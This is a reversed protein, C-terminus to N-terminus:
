LHETAVKVKNDYGIQSLTPSDSSSQNDVMKQVYIGLLRFPREACIYLLFGFIMDMGFDGIVYIFYTIVSFHDNNRLSATTATPLVTNLLYVNFGIASLPTFPKWSLISHVFTQSGNLMVYLVLCLGGSWISRITAGYVANRWVNYETYPYYFISGSGWALLMIVGGVLGYTWTQTLPLKDGKYNHLVYGLITGIIYPGARTYAKMYFKGFYDDESPTIFFRANFILNANLHEAYTVYFPIIIAVVLATYAVKLGIKPRYHYLYCLPIVALGFQFECPMFWTHFGCLQDSYVYNNIYLLNTWWVKKCNEMDTGVFMNWLPGDGMKYYLTAYFFLVIAYVPTLRFYRVLIIQWFKVKHTEMRNLIFFVAVCGSVTFFVDVFLDMHGIFFLVFFNYYASENVIINQVPGSYRFGWRHGATIIICSIFTIGSLPKLDFNKISSTRKSMSQVARRASFCMLLDISRCEVNWKWEKHGNFFMFDYLTSTVMLTILSLMLALFFQDYYRNKVSCLKPNVSVSIRTYNISALHDQIAAELDQGGCAAPVCLAWKAEDLRVKWPSGGYYMKDWVSKNPDYHIAFPDTTNHGPPVHIKVDVLCYQAEIPTQISLCEDFDGLQFRSGSTLGVPSKASADWVTTRFFRIRNM